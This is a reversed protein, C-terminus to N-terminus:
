HQNVEKLIKTYYNNFLSLVERNLTAEANRGRIQIRKCYTEESVMLVFMNNTIGNNLNDILLKLIRNILNGITQENHLEIIKCDKAELVNYTKILDNYRNNLREFGEKSIENQEYSNKAFCKISDEPLREFINIRKNVPKLNFDKGM